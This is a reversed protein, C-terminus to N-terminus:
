AALGEGRGVSLYLPGPPPPHLALPAGPAAEGRYPPAAPSPRPRSPLPRTRGRRQRPRSPSGLPPPARLVPSDACALLRPLHDSRARHKPSELRLPARRPAPAPRFSVRPGGRLPGAWPLPLAPARPDDWTEPAGAARPPRLHRLRPEQARPGSLPGLREPGGRGAGAQAASTAAAPACPRGDPGRLSGALRPPVPARPARGLGGGGGWVRSPPPRASSPPRGGRAPPPAPPPATAPAGAARSRGQASGGTRDPSSRHPRNRDAGQVGSPAGGSLGPAPPQPSPPWPSCRFSGRLDPSSSLLSSGPPRRPVGELGKARRALSRFKRVRFNPVVFTRVTRTLFRPTLTLSPLGHGPRWPDEKQRYSGASWRM